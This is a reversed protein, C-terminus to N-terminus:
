ESRLAEIPTLSAARRAPFYGFVLGIAASVTLGLIVGNMSVAFTWGGQFLSVLKIAVWSLSSGLVIGFVGGLTTLIVSELIFQRLIDSKTAGIAKRLGIERIRETVAVYMINMIGIGGVVLSIGAISSLLIQLIQAIQGASEVADQQTTVNFDDKAPDGEPNDLNHRERIAVNIRDKADTLNLTTKITIYNVYNRNYLDLAATLPMYVQQDVNTFSKTGKKEIVGIVRFGQGNIKVSKGIPNESGFAEDAIEYGLVVEKAHSDVSSADFFDGQVPRIDSLTLEDPLTGVVTVGADLGNATLSDKQQLRAAIATVWTQKALKDVDKITLTEKIFLSPQGEEEKSGNAVTLVDSGLTSVQSLIYRQAAEGISLMLIVSMIGIVIGLMTLMSRGRTRNLSQTSSKVLDTLTM